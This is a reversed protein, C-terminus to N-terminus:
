IFLKIGFSGLGWIFIPQSFSIIQINTGLKSNWIFFRTSSIGIIASIDGYSSSLDAGDSFFFDKLAYTSDALTSNSVSIKGVYQGTSLRWLRL